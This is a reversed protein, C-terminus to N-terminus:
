GFIKNSAYGINDILNTLRYKVLPKNGDHNSLFSRSCWDQYPVIFDITKNLVASSLLFIEKPDPYQVPHFITEIDLQNEDHFRSSDRLLGWTIVPVDCSRAVVMAGSLSGIALDAQKLAAVQINMREDAPLNIFDICGKPCHDDFFAEGPSGFLGIKHDPFKELLMNILSEYNEKKWNKDPRRNERNRPYIAIIREGSDLYEELHSFTLKPPELILFEQNDFPIHKQQIDEDTRIIDAISVGFRMNDISNLSFPVFYETEDPLKAKYSSLLENAKVSVDVQDQKPEFFEWTEYKFIGLFEKQVSKNGRPFGDKWYDTIYGNCSKFYKNFEEPHQWYEDANPYFSQRGPFSAVIKKYDKFKNKSVKNVWAHWYLMEWGFEGVFPGFFVTKM